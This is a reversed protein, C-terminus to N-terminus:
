FPCVSWFLQGCASPRNECFEELIHRATTQGDSYDSIMRYSARKQPGLKLNDVARDYALWWKILDRSARERPLIYCSKTCYHSPLERNVCHRLIKHRDFNYITRLIASARVASLLTALDPMSSLIHSQLETPLTEIRSLAVKPRGRTSPKNDNAPTKDLDESIRLSHLKSAMVSDDISRINSMTYFPPNTVRNTSHLPESCRLGITKPFTITSSNHNKLFPTFFGM